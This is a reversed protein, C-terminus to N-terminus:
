FEASRPPKACSLRGPRNCLLRRWASGPLGHQLAQLNVRQLRGLSALLRLRPVVRLVGCRCWVCQALLAWGIFDEVRCPHETGTDSAYSGPPCQTCGSASKAAQMVIWSLNLAEVYALLQFRTLKVPLASYKGPPCKSCANPQTQRITNGYSGAPCAYKVGGQVL